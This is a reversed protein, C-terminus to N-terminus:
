SVTSLANTIENGLVNSLSNTTEKIIKIIKIYEIERGRKWKTIVIMFEMFFSVAQTRIFLHILLNLYYFLNIIRGFHRLIFGNIYKFYISFIM